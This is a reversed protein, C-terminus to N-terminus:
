GSTGAGRGATRVLDDAFLSAPDTARSKKISLADIARAYAADNRITTGTVGHQEAIVDATKASHLYNASQTFQNVGTGGQRKKLREYKM